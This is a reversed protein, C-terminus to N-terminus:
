RLAQVLLAVALAGVAVLVVLNAQLLRSTGRSARPPSSSDRARRPRASAPDAGDRWGVAEALTATILANLSVGERESERALAAHLGTPMRLLLRGSHSGGRASRRAPADDRERDEHVGAAEM